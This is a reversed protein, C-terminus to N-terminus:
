GVRVPQVILSRMDGSVTTAPNANRVKYTIATNAATVTGPQEKMLYVVTNTGGNVQAAETISASGIQFGAGHYDGSSNSARYGTTIRYDGALPATISPGTGGTSPDGYASSGTKTFSTGSEATLNAGGIFEWKYSSASSANYRLHWIVGNAAMSVSQYYVEQGDIPSSPLNAVLTPATVAYTFAAPGRQFYIIKGTSDPLNFTTSGNGAGYFTGIVDFLQSYTTRSVASGDCVLWNVPAASGAFDVITGVPFESGLVSSTKEVGSATYFQWSM